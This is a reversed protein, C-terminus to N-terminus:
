SLVTMWAGGDTGSGAIEHGLGPSSLSTYFRCCEEPPPNASLLAFMFLIPGPLSVTPHSLLLAHANHMACRRGDVPLQRPLLSSTRILAPYPTCQPFDPSPDPRAHPNSGNQKPTNRSTHGHASPHAKQGLLDFPLNKAVTTISRIERKPPIM